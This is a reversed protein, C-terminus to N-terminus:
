VRRKRPSPELFGANPHEEGLKRSRHVWQHVTNEPVGKIRAIERVPSRGLESFERHSQAIEIYFKESKGHQPRGRPVLVRRAINMSDTSADGSDYHIETVVNVPRGGHPSKTAHPIPHTAAVALAASVAPALRQRRVDKPLVGEREHHRVAVGTVVPVGDDGYRIEVAIEYDSDSPVLTVVLDPESWWVIREAPLKPWSLDIRFGPKV